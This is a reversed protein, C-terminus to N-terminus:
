CLLKGSNINKKEEKCMAEELRLVIFEKTCSYIESFFEQSNKTTTTFKIATFIRMPTEKESYM